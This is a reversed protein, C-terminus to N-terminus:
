KLPTVEIQQRPTPTSIQEEAGAPPAAASAPAVAPQPAGTAQAKGAEGTRIRVYSV